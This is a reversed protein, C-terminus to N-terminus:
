TAPNLLFFGPISLYASGEGLRQLMVSKPTHRQLAQQAERAVQGVKPFHTAKKLNPQQNRNGGDCDISYKQNRAPGALGSALSRKLSAQESLEKIVISQM